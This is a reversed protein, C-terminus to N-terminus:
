SGLCQAGRQRAIPRVFVRVRAAILTVRVAGHVSGAVATRAFKGPFIGLQYPTFVWANSCTYSNRHNRNVNM